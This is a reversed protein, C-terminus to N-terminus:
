NGKETKIKALEMDDLEALGIQILYHGDKDPDLVTQALLDFFNRLAENTQEALGKKGFQKAEKSGIVYAINEILRVEYM